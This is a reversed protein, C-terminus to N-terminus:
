QGVSSPRPTVPEGRAKSCLTHRHGILIIQKCLFFFFFFFPPDLPLNYVVRLFFAFTFLLGPNSGEVESNLDFTSGMLGNWKTKLQLAVQHVNTTFFSKTM